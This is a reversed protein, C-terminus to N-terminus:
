EAPAGHRIVILREILKRGIGDDIRYLGEAMETVAAYQRQVAIFVPHILHPKVLTLRQDGFKVTGAAPTISLNVLFM